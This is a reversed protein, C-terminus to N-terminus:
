RLHELVSFLCTIVPLDSFSNPNTVHSTGELVLAASIPILDFRTTKYLRGSVSCQAAENSNKRPLDALTGKSLVWLPIFNRFGLSEPQRNRMVRIMFDQIRPYSRILKWHETTFNKKYKGSFYPSYIKKTFCKLGEVNSNHIDLGFCPSFLKHKM